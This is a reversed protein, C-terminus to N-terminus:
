RPRRRRRGSGAASAASTAAPRPGRARPCGPPATAPGRRRRAPLRDPPVDVLQVVRELLGAPVARRQRQQRRGLRAGVHARDPVLHEVQEVRIRKVSRGSTASPNAKPMITCCSCCCSSVISAVWWSRAPAAPAPRAAAARAAPGPRGALHQHRGPREGHAGGGVRPRQVVLARACRTSRGAYTMSAAGTVLPSTRAREDGVAAVVSGRQHLAAPQACRTRSRASRASASAARRRRSPTGATRGTTIRDAGVLRHHVDAEVLRLRVRRPGALPQRGLRLPLLRGAPVRRGAPGAPVRPAVLLRGGPVGVQALPVQPRRRDARVRRAGRREAHVLEDAVDPLPRRAGEVPM